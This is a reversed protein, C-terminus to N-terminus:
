TLRNTFEAQTKPELVSFAKRLSQHRQYSAMYNDELPSAQPDVLYEVEYHYHGDGHPIRWLHARFGEAQCREVYTQGGTEMCRTINSYIAAIDRVGVSCIAAIDMVTFKSGKNKCALHDM